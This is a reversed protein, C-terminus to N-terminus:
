ARYIQPAKSIFWSRTPAEITTEVKANTTTAQIPRHYWGTPTTEDGKTTNQM